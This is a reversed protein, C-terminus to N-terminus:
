EKGKDGVEEADSEKIPEVMLAEWMMGSAPNAMVIKDCIKCYGVMVSTKIKNWKTYINRQQNVIPHTCFTVVSDAVLKDLEKIAEPSASTPATIIQNEM